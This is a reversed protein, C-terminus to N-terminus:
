QMTRAPTPPCMLTKSDKKFFCPVCSQTGTAPRMPPDLRQTYKPYGQGDAFCKGTMTEGFTKCWRGIFFKLGTWDLPPSVFSRGFLTIKAFLRGSLTRIYPRSSLMAGITPKGDFLALAVNSDVQPRARISPKLNVEVKVPM